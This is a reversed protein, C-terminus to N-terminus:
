DKPWLNEIKDSKKEVEKEKFSHDPGFIAGEIRWLSRKIHEIDKELDTKDASISKLSLYRFIGWGLLAIAGGILIFKFYDIAEM